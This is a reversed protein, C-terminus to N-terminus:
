DPARTRHATSPQVQHTPHASSGLRLALHLTRSTIRQSIVLTQSISNAPHPSTPSWQGPIIISRVWQRHTWSDSCSLRPQNRLRRLCVLCSSPLTPPIFTPLHLNPSLSSSPTLLLPYSNTLLGSDATHPPCARRARRGCRRIQLSGTKSPTGDITGAIFLPIVSYLDTTPLM